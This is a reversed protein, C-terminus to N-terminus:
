SAGPGGIASELQARITAFLRQKHPDGEIDRHIDGLFASLNRHTFFNHSLTVSADHSRTYHWWDPPIVIMEGPRLVTHRATATRMEPFREYDPMEPDFGADVQQQPEFLFVTKDGQFQVLSGVTHHFDKHLPTITDKRSIYIAHFKVSSIQELVEAVYPPLRTVVNPICSPYPSIDDHLAPHNRFGDWNLAWLAKEDFEAEASPEGARSLWVGPLSSFPKDLHDVFAGLRTAKGSTTRDFRLTAIGLDSGFHTSFFELNWKRIAPWESAADPLVAPHRPGAEFYAAVSQPDSCSLSEIPALKM